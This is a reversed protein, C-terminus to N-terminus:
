QRPIFTVNTVKSNPADSVKIIYRDKKTFFTFSQLKNRDDRLIHGIGACEIEDVNELGSNKQSLVIDLDAKRAYECFKVREISTYSYVLLGCTVGGILIGTILSKM